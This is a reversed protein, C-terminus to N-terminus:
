RKGKPKPTPKSGTKGDARAPEPQAQPIAELPRLAKEREMGLVLLRLGTASLNPNGPADREALRTLEAHVANSM